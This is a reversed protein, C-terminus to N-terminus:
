RHRHLAVVIKIVRAGLFAFRIGDLAALAPAQIRAFLNQEIGVSKGFALLIEAQAVEGNAGIM